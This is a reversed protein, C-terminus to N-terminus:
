HGRPITKKGRDGGGGGRAGERDEETERLKKVPSKSLHRVVGEEKDRIGAGKCGAEVTDWTTM